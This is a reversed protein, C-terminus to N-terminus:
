DHELLYKYASDAAVAGDGCASVVQYLSKKRCDGCAFVAEKSSRMEQDTIIFGNPDTELLNKAFGTNPTIGVFIFVGQCSLDLSSGNKLNKIKVGEVKNTGTIEEVVSELIFNIKPNKKAKEQLIKSARLETRRHVLHVIRAYSTLFIADEVARDGGGILVVDKERFLPGDCTGCYSVGRGIFKDEGIVGLKKAQAGTAIIVTRATYDIDHTKINFIHQKSKQEAKIGLIEKNELIIGLEEVQKRFKDMLEFTSVGEPFGPYNEISPSLIIQGGCSMKELFLVKMKFRGAYLAATLGAPGAGIIAVDFTSDQM